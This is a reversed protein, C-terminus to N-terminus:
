VTLGRIWELLEQNLKDKDEWLLWHAADFDRVTLPGKVNQITVAKQMAPLCICDRLAAGFFVPKHILINEPTIGKSDELDLDFTRIKYWNVPAALGGELLDTKHKDLEEESLYSASSTKRNGELWAKLTGTPAFHDKWLSPDAPILLSYFSDINKEIMEPAEEAAFFSWYGFLEYGAIKVTQPLIDAYKINSPPTYGVALFGFALFRDPFYNALRSLLGCGWDHGIAITKEVNEADLIDVIDQSMSSFKYDHYDLPKDTGGYGLLDPVILGYGQSKFFDVQYRWDYSTSPFGHLFLLFPKGATPAIFYYKYKLGRRTASFKYHTPDM